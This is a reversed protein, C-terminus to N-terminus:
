FSVCAHSRVRLVAEQQFRSKYYSIIELVAQENFKDDPHILILVHSSERVISGDASRWQGFAQSVSLGQPFRPTVIGKLFDAWEEPLVVGNPKATGFYLSEQIALQEGGKCIINKMPACATIATALVATLATRYMFSASYQHTKSQDHRYILPNEAKLGSAYSGTSVLAQIARVIGAGMKRLLM